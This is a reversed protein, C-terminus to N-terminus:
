IFEQLAAILKAIDGKDLYIVNETDMTIKSAVENEEGGYWYPALLVANGNQSHHDGLDNTVIFAPETNTEVTKFYTM